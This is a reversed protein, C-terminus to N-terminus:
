GKWGDPFLVDFGFTTTDVYGEPRLKIFADSNYQDYYAKTKINLKEGLSFNHILETFIYTDKWLTDDSLADQFGIYGEKRKKLYKGHFKLNKYSLKINLDTKEKEMQARGPSLSGIEDFIIDKEITESFGGTDFFDFFGSIKLDGFEKGFLANYNQTDFSGGSTTLQIGDIDDTDKTIVNIVALFANQGYLASGPGRIIEIKKASEVALDYFYFSAGGSGPENVSHGDILLKVKKSNTELVGRVGIELIGNENMMIDFGPVIKLVDTLTKFGMQKIQRASIVSMIAPSKLVTRPKKLASVVIEEESFIAFMEDLETDKSQAFLDEASSLVLNMLLFLTFNLYIFIRVFRSDPNIIKHITKIGKYNMHQLKKNIM